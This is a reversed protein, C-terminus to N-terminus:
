LSTPYRRILTAIAQDISWDEPTYVKVNGPLRHALYYARHYGYDSITTEDPPDVYTVTRYPAVAVTHYPAEHTEFHQGDVPGGIFLHKM